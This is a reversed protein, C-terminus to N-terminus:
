KLPAPYLVAYKVGKDHLAQVVENFKSRKKKQMLRRSFDPFSSIRKGKLTRVVRLVLERTPFRLFLVLTDCPRDGENPYPGLSCHVRETEINDSSIKLTNLLLDSVFSQLDQLEEGEPAEVICINKHHGRNELTDICETLDEIKGALSSILPKNGAWGVEITSIRAETKTVQKILDKMTHKVQALDQKMESVDEAVTQQLSHLSKIGATASAT